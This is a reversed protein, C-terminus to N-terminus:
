PDEEWDWTLVRRVQEAWFREREEDLKEPMVLEVSKVYRRLHSPIGPLGWFGKGPRGTDQNVVLSSILPAGNRYAYISCAGVIQGIKVDFYDPSYLAIKNGLEGYTILGEGSRARTKLERYAKRIYAAFEYYNAFITGVWLEKLMRENM